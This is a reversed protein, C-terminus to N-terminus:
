IDARMFNEKELPSGYMRRIMALQGVHTLLDSLPGQILILADALSVNAHGVQLAAQDLLQFFSTAIDDSPEPLKNDNIKLETIFVRLVACMHELIQAPTRVGGPSQFDLYTYDTAHLCKALRYQISKLLHRLILQTDNM